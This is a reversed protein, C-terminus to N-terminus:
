SRPNHNIHTSWDCLWLQSSLEHFRTALVNTQINVLIRYSDGDGICPTGLGTVETHDLLCALFSSPLLAMELVRAQVGEIMDRDPGPQSSPFIQVGFEGNSGAEVLEEFRPLVRHMHYQANSGDEDNIITEAYAAIPAGFYLLVGLTLALKNNVFIELPSPNLYNLEFCSIRCM